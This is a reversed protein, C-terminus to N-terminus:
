KGRPRPPYGKNLPKDTPEFKCECHYGKCGLGYMKPYINHKKWTSARYVRGNYNFCDGCHQTDGYVWEQKQDKAAYTSGMIRVRNYASIWLEARSFLPALKGGFAKANAMIAQGLGYIFGMEKDVESTIAAHEEDTLEDPNIGYIKAGEYWAQTFGREIALSMQDYFAYYDWTGNWLGRVSSRINMRYSDISKLLMSVDVEFPAPYCNALRRSEMTEM